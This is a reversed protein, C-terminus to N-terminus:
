DYYLIESTEEIMTFLSQTMMESFDNYDKRRLKPFELTLKDFLTAHEGLYSERLYDRHAIKDRISKLINIWSEPDNYHNSFYEQLQAARPDAIQNMMRKFETYTIQVPNKINLVLCIYYMWLEVLAQSQFLYSELFLSGLVKDEDDWSLTDLSNQLCEVSNSRSHLNHSHLLELHLLSLFLKLTCAHIKDTIDRTREISYQDPNLTLYRQSAGEIKKVHKEYLRKEKQIMIKHESILPEMVDPLTKYKEKVQGYNYGIASGTLYGLVLLLFGFIITQVM